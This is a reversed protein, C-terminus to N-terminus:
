AHWMHRHIHACLVCAHTAYAYGTAGAGAHWMHRHIYACLVCAHTATAGAGAHRRPQTASLLGPRIGPHMDKIVLTPLLHLTELAMMPVHPVHRKRRIPGGVAGAGIVTHWTPTSEQTKSQMQSCCAGGGAGTGVVSGAAAPLGGRGSGCCVHACVHMRVYTYMCMHMCMCVYVGYTCAPVMRMQCVSGEAELFQHEVALPMQYIPRDADFIARGVHSLVSQVCVERKSPDAISSPAPRHPHSAGPLAPARRTQLCSRM